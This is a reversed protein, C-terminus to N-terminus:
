PAYDVVSRVSLDHTRIKSPADLTAANKGTNTNNQTPLATSVKHHVSRGDLSDKWIDLLNVSESINESDPYALLGLGNFSFFFFSKSHRGNNSKFSQSSLQSFIHFNHLLDITRLFRAPGKCTNDIRRSSLQIVCLLIGKGYRNSHL